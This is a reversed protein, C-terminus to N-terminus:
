YASSSSSVRLTGCLISRIEYCNLHLYYFRYNVRALAANVASAVQTMQVLELNASATIIKNIWGTTTIIGEFLPGTGYIGGQTSLRGWAGVISGSGLLLSKVPPVSPDCLAFVCLLNYVALLV